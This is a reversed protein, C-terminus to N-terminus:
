KAIIIYKSGRNLCLFKCCLQWNWKRRLILKKWFNLCNLTFITWNQWCLHTACSRSSCEALLFEVLIAVVFIHLVFDCHHARYLRYNCAISVPKWAQSCVARKWFLAIVSNCIILENRGTVVRWSLSGLISARQIYKRTGEFHWWGFVCFYICTSNAFFSCLPATRFYLKSEVSSDIFHCLYQSM